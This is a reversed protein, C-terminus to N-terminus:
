APCVMIMVFQFILLILLVLLEVIAILPTWVKLENKQVKPSKISKINKEWKKAFKCKTWFKNFHDMCVEMCFRSQTAWFIASNGRAVRSGGGKQRRQSIKKEYNTSVTWIFNWAFDPTHLEFFTRTIAIEKIKGLKLFKKLSDRFNNKAYIGAPLEYSSGHLIQLRYSM